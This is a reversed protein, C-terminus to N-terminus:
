KLGGLNDITLFYGSLQHEQKILGLLHQTADGQILLTLPM